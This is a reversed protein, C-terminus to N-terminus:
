RDTDRDRGTECTIEKIILHKMSDHEVTNTEGESKGKSSERPLVITFTTGHNIESKVDIVGAHQEVIGYILSLGLGTNKAKTTFLPEFIRPLVDAPIGKGEDTVMIRIRDKETSYDTTITIKGGRSTAEISNVILAILIQQIGGADCHILDNGQDLEKVLTLEKMKVSHDIVKVSNDIITNMHEEQIFGSTKKAFILLNKVINGCRKAEDGIFILNQKVSKLNESDINDRNLYKSSVKAYSLIGSLPNNIEHAVMASLEGMTAMKGALILQLQTKELERTKEKVRTELQSSWNQVAENAEKLQYTMKNFSAALNGLEDRSHIAVKYDLNMNAVERTADNLKKIPAHIMKRIFLGKVLATILILIASYLIMKNRTETIRQDGKELSIKVDLIGLLKEKSSHAHCAANYCAPENEIPNILGLIRFREPSKLTRTRDKTPIIGKAPEEEHCVYCQEARKDAVQGIDEPKDSFTIIGAKNYIRIGKFVDEKGISLITNTLDDRRNNLMSDYTARKIVNSVQVANSVIDERFLTTFFYINVYTVIGFSLMLLVTLLVFFKVGISDTLRIVFKFIKPYRM